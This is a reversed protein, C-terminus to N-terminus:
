AEATITYTGPTNFYARISYNGGSDTATANMTNQGDVFLTIAAGQVANGNADTLVGSFTDQEGARVTSTEEALTLKGAANAVTARTALLLVATAGTVAAGAIVAKAGNSLAM